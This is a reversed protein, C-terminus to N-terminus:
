VVLGPHYAKPTGEKGDDAKSYSILVDILLQNEPLHQLAATPIPNRVKFTRKPASKISKQIFSLESKLGFRNSATGSLIFGYLTATSLSFLM